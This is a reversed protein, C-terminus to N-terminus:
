DKLRWVKYSSAVPVAELGDPVTGALLVMRLADPIAPGTAETDGASPCVVIYRAGLARLRSAAEHAPAHLVDHAALISRGMRHYPASMVSLNTWAVLFPGADIDNVALGAPLVALPKAEDASLCSKADSATPAPAPHSAAALTVSTPKAEGGTAAADGRGLLTFSAAALGILALAGAGGALPWRGFRLAFAPREISTATGALENKRTLGLAIPAVSLFAAYPLLREQWVWLVVAVGLIAGYLAAHRTGSRALLVGYCIGIAPYFAFTVADFPTSRGVAFLSRVESVNKLWAQVLRPDLQAYPGGFCAPQLWGYVALGAGGGAVLMGLAAWQPGGRSLVRDAALVGAAGCIAFAVLNASIVDCVVAGDPRFPGFVLYCGLLSGAFALAAHSVGTLNRYWFLATLTVLGIAALTLGLGELGVSCGVALVAGAFWGARPTELASILGFVGALACLIMVNHHDIGGPLFKFHGTSPVALAIALLATRRGAERDCFRAIVYAALGSLLTPWLVVAITEAVTQGFVPTLLAIMLALPFDVIRSWHSVLVDAGGFRPMRMDYWPQGALLERVQVLRMSDDPDDKFLVGHSSILDTCCILFAAAMAVLLLPQQELWTVAVDLRNRCRPLLGHKAADM